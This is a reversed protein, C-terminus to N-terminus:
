KKLLHMLMIDLELPHVFFNWRMGLFFNISDQVIDRSVMRKKKVIEIAYSNNLVKVGANEHRLM